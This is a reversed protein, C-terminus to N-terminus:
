KKMHQIQRIEEALELIADDWNNHHYGMGIALTKCHRLFDSAGCDAPISLTLEAHGPYDAILTFTDEIKMTNEQTPTPQAKISNGNEDYWFEAGNSYRCHILNNNRDYEKWWEYGKFNRFHIQNNNADYEWWCEVGNSTRYHIMNRMEDYETWSEVGDSNRHHIENNNPTYESWWEYGDSNRHHILNGKEDYERIVTM